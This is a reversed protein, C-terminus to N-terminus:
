QPVVETERPRRSSPGPCLGLLSELARSRRQLLSLSVSFQRGEPNEPGHIGM